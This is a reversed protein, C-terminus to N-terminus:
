HGDWLGVCWDRGHGEVLVTAIVNQVEQMMCRRLVRSQVFCYVLLVLRQGVV